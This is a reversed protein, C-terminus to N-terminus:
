MQEALGVQAEPTEPANLFSIKVPHSFVYANEQLLV